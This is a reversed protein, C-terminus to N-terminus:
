MKQLHRDKVHHHPGPVHRKKDAMKDTYMKLRGYASFSKKHKGPKERVLFLLIIVKIIPLPIIKQSIDLIYMKEISFTFRRTTRGVSEM